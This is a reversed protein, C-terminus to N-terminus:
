LMWEKIEIGDETNEIYVVRAIGVKEIFISCSPCPKSSTIVGNSKAKTYGVVYLTMDETVKRNKVIWKSICDIEAHTPITHTSYIQPTNPHTKIYDNVGISKIKKGKALIAVLTYIGAEKYKDCIKFARSIMEIDKSRVM